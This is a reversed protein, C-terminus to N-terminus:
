SEKIGSSTLLNVLFFLTSLFKDRNIFVERIVFFPYAFSLTLCFFSVTSREISTALLPWACWTLM